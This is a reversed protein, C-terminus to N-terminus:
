RLIDALSRKHKFTHEMEAEIDLYLRAMEPNAKAGIRLDNETALVCLVCSVRSCGLDYAVHHRLGSRRIEDWIQTETLFLVPRWHHVIRSQSKTTLRDDVMFEPLKARRPSEERREGSVMLIRPAQAGVCRVMHAIPDRKHDSTCYRYPNSPWMGRRRISVPLPRLPRVIELPVGYQSCLYACHPASQPWEGGTDSHVAIVRDLVHAREAHSCVQDLSVQSDKGGSINVIISDYAALKM